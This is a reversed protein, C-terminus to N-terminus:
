INPIGNPRHTRTPLSIKIMLKNSGPSPGNKSPKFLSNSAVQWGSFVLAVKFCTTELRFMATIEVIFMIKKHLWVPKFMVGGFVLM